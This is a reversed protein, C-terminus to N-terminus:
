QFTSITSKRVQLRTFDIAITQTLNGSKWRFYSKCAVAEGYTVASTEGDLKIGSKSPKNVLTSWHRSAVKNEVQVVVTESRSFICM